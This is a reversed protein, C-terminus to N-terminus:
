LLPPIFRGCEGNIWSVEVIQATATIFKTPTNTGGMERNTHTDRNPNPNAM